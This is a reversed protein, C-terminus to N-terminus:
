GIHGAGRQLRGNATHGAKPRLAPNLGPAAAVQDDQVLRFQPLQGAAERAAQRCLDSSGFCAPPTHTFWQGCHHCRVQVQFCWVEVELEGCQPCTVYDPFPDPLPLPEPAVPDDLQPKCGDPEM